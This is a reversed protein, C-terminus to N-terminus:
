ARLEALVAETERVLDRVVQAAPKIDDILRVSEGAYLAAQQLDGRYGILPPLVSYKPIDVVSGFMEIQGITTGEGVRHGPAASGAAEWENYERNRLVRHEADEWGVDFLRTYVTDEARASVLMDKYAQVVRAETTALFRTGLSVGQAGLSLAAAIGRGNAIGGAALVPLPCLKDALTPVITSLSTKSKVHGGAEIGQAIIADVGKAAAELGEEVSGVQIFIKVGARHADAIYPAPDGWFLVIFPVREEIAVEIQGEKMMPMIINVGFPKTTLARLARIQERMVPAPLGGSGLVGCGGANSVAATLEPGSINVGMGVSFIPYDIGLLKCLPTKLM